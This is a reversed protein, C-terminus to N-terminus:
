RSRQQNAPKASKKGAPKKGSTKDDDDVPRRVIQM